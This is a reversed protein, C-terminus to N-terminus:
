HQSLGIASYKKKITSELLHFKAASPLTDIDIKLGNYDIIYDLLNYITLVNRELEDQKLILISQFIENTNLFHEILKKRALLQQNELFHPFNRLKFYNDARNVDWPKELRLISLSEAEYVFYEHQFFGWKSPFRNLMENILPTLDGTADFTPIKKSSKIFNIKSAPSRTFSHLESALFKLFINNELLNTISLKAYAFGKVDRYLKSINKILERRRDEYELLVEERLPKSLSELIHRSISEIDEGVTLSDLNSKLIDYVEELMVDVDLEIEKGSQASHNPKRAKINESIVQSRQKSSKTKARLRRYYGRKLKYEINDKRRKPLSNFEGSNNPDLSLIEFSKIKDEGKSSDPHHDTYYMRPDIDSKPSATAKGTVSDSIINSPGGELVEIHSAEDLDSMDKLVNMGTAGLIVQVVLMTTFTIKSGKKM